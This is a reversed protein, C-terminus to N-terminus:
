PIAEAANILAELPTGTGSYPNFPELGAYDFTIYTHGPKYRRFACELDSAIGILLMPDLGCQGGGAGCRFWTLRTKAPVVSWYYRITPDGIEWRFWKSGEGNWDRTDGCQSVGCMFPSHEIISIEYGISAAYTIFWPRSQGGTFAVKATLAHQRDGITLPEALCKDPLGFCEEWHDLTEFASRPDTEVALLTAARTDINYESADPDETDPGGWIGSLGLITKQQTSEPDRPWASGQPLLSAWAEAYDSAGHTLGDIPTGTDAM